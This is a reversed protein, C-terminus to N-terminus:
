CALVFVDCCTVLVLVWVRDRVLVPFSVRVFWLTKERGFLMQLDLTSGSCVRGSGRGLTSGSGSCVVRSGARALWVGVLALRYVYLVLVLGGSVGSRPTKIVGARPVSIL